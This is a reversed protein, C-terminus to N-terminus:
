TGCQLGSLPLGHNFGVAQDRGLREIFFLHQITRDAGLQQRLINALRVHTLLHFDKNLSGFLAAICQVM